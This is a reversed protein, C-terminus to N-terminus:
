TLQRSMVSLIHRKGRCNKVIVEVVLVFLFHTAVNVYGFAVEEHVSKDFALTMQLRQIGIIGLIPLWHDGPFNQIWTQAM